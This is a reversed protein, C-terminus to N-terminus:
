LLQLAIRKAPCYFSVQANRTVGSVKTSTEYFEYSIMPDGLFVRRLFITKIIVCRATRWTTKENTETVFYTLILCEDDLQSICILM